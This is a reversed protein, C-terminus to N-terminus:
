FSFAFLYLILSSEGFVILYETIGLISRSILRNIWPFALNTGHGGAMRDM